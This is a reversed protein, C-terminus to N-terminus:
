LCEADEERVREILTDVSIDRSLFGHDNSAMIKLHDLLYAEANRDNTERVYVELLEIAEFLHEQADLLTDELERKDM